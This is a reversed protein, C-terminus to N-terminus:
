GFVPRQGLSGFSRPGLDLRLAGMKAKAPTAERGILCSLQVDSAQGDNGWQYSIRVLIIPVLLKQAGSAFATIDSLPVALNLDLVIKEDIEAGDLQEFDPDNL